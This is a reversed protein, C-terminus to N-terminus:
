SVDGKLYHQGRGRHPIIMRHKRFIMAILINGPLRVNKLPVGLFKFDNPLRAGFMRVKGDAFDDVDLAAPTMLIHSIENATIREPNLNLDVGLTKNLLSSDSDTYEENRVRAVTHKAGFAKAMRCAVLNVEDSDTVAIFVDANRVEPMDLVEPTCGNGQITLVDLSDKVVQRREEDQEIVVVDYSGDALLKAVSYGMKGAGVVVIRM